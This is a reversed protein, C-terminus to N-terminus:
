IFMGERSQEIQVIKIDEPVLSVLLVVDDVWM